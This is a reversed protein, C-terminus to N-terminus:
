CMVSMENIGSCKTQWRFILRFAQSRCSGSRGVESAVRSTSDIKNFGGLNVERAAIRKWKWRWSPLVRRFGLASVKEGSERCHSPSECEPLRSEIRQVLVHWANTWDIARSADMEQTRDIIFRDREKRRLDDLEESLREGFVM